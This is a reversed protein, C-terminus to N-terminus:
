PHYAISLKIEIGLGQQFAKWSHSTFLLDENFVIEKPIEHYWVINGIYFKALYEATRSLKFPNFQSTKTLRDVVVWIYDNLKLSKSLGLIFDCTVCEWKWELIELPKLLGGLLQHDIKVQQCTLCKSIFNAIGKEMGM